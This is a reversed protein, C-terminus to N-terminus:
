NDKDKNPDSTVKDKYVRKVKRKGKNPKSAYRSYYGNYGRYNYGKVKSGVGFWDLFINLLKGGYFGIILLISLAAIHFVTDIAMKTLRIKTGVSKGPRTLFTVMIIDYTGEDLDDIRKQLSDLKVEEEKVLSKYKDLGYQSTVLKEKFNARAEEHEKYRKRLRQLTQARKKPIPNIVQREEGQPAGLEKLVSNLNSTSNTPSEIVFNKYVGKDEQFLITYEDSLRPFDVSSSDIFVKYKISEHYQSLNAEYVSKAKSTNVRHVPKEPNRYFAIVISIGVIFIALSRSVRRSIAM